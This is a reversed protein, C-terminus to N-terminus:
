PKSVNRSNKEKENYNELLKDARLFESHVHEM